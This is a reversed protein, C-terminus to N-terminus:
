MHYIVYYCVYVISTFYIYIVLGRFIAKYLSFCIYPNFFLFHFYLANRQHTIQSFSIDTHEM